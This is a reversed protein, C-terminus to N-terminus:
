SIYLIFSIRTYLLLFVILIYYICFNKRVSYRRLRPDPPSNRKDCWKIIVEFDQLDLSQPNKIKLYFRLKQLSDSKRRRM